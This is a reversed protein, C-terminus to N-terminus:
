KIEPRISTSERPPTKQFVSEAKETDLREQKVDQYNRADLIHPTIFILLDEMTSSKSSNKFLHGIGPIDKLWPVGSGGDSDMSKNLGGIVTTQGDFLVVGTEAKKTIITPNGLITHSWDLEDKSTIIDLKMINDSIVHPTVDLSIVAKKFEISIDGDDVTQFPVEKGSEIVAKQNDLTTISPNSLINLKGQSQLAQLQVTLVYKGPDEFMLGLNMGKGALVKDSAFNLANGIPPLHTIPTGRPVDDEDETTYLSTDYDGMPGGVWNQKGRRYTHGLGGWQVGLERATDKNAEVIQAEILIQRVPKDLKKIIPVVRAIDAATAQIMLSHTHKDIMIGGRALSEDSMADSGNGATINTMDGSTKMFEWLNDRLPELDDSGIYRIPIIVTELPALEQAKSNLTLMALDHERKKLRMSQQAAMLRVDNNLDEISIVRIIDGIWEYSYGFTKLISEFVQDWPVGDINLDTIGTVNKSIIINVNAVKALTRIVIDVSVDNMKMSVKMAPLPRHSPEAKQDAVNKITESKVETPEQAPKQALPEPVPPLDVAVDEVPTYGKLQEAKIKWDTFNGAPKADKGMCGTMFFLALFIFISGTTFFKVTQRQRTTNLIM